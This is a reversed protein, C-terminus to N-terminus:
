SGCFHCQTRFPDLVQRAILIPLRCTVIHSLFPNMLVSGSVMTIYGSSRSHFIMKSNYTNWWHLELKCQTFGTFPSSYSSKWFRTYFPATPLRRSWLPYLVFVNPQTRQHTIWHATLPSRIRRDYSWLTNACTTGKYMYSRKRSLQAASSRGKIEFFFSNYTNLLGMRTTCIIQRSHQALSCM